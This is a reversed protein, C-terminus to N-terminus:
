LKFGYALRFAVQGLHSGNRSLGEYRFGFDLGNNFDVGLGPTYVLLTGKGFASSDNNNDTGFAPGVEGSLYFHDMTFFKLGAKVPVMDVNGGGFEKKQFFSTYGLSLTGSINSYLDKQLRVDGGVTVNYFKSISHGTNLGVGLRVVGPTGITTIQTQASAAFSVFLAFGALVIGAKEPLTKFRM